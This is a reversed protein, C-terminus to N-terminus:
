YYGFYEKSYRAYEINIEDNVNFFNYDAASVEISYKFAHNLYFHYSNNLEMYKKEVILSSEVFKSKESVDRKLPRINRKYGTFAIISFFTLTTLIAYTFVQFMFEKNEFRFYYILGVLLPIGVTPVLLINMVKMYSKSEKEYQQQIFQLEDEDMPEIRLTNHM